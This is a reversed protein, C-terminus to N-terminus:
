ILNVVMKKFKDGLRERLISTIEERIKKECKYEERSGDDHELVLHGFADFYALKLGDVALSNAFRPTIVNNYGLCDSIHDLPDNYGIVWSLSVDKNKHSVLLIQINGRPHSETLFVNYAGIKKVQALESTIDDMRKLIDMDTLM